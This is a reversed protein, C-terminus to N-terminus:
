AANEAIATGRKVGPVRGGMARQGSRGGGNGRSGTERGGRGWVGGRDDTDPEEQREGSVAVVVIEKERTRM